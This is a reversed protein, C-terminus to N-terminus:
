ALAQVEEHRRLNRLIIQYQGLRQWRRTYGHVRIEQM